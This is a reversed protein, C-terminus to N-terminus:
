NYRRRRARPRPVHGRLTGPVAARYDLSGHLPFGPVGHPGAGSLKMAEPTRSFAKALAGTSRSRPKRTATNTRRHLKGPGPSHSANLIILVDTSRVNRAEGHRQRCLYDARPSGRRARESCSIFSCCGEQSEKLRRQTREWNANLPPVSTGRTRRPVCVQACSHPQPM